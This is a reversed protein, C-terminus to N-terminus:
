NIGGLVWFRWPPHGGGLLPLLPFHEPFQIRESHNRYKGMSALNTISPTPNNGQKVCPRESVARSNATYVLNAEFEKRLRGYGQAPTRPCCNQRVVGWQM